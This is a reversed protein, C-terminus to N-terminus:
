LLLNRRPRAYLVFIPLKASAKKKARAMTAALSGFGGKAGGAKGFAGVATLSSASMKGMAAIADVPEDAAYRPSSVRLCFDM